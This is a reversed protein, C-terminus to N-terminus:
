RRRGPRRGLLLAVGGLGICSAGLLIEVRTLSGSRGTNALIPAASSAPTPTSPV